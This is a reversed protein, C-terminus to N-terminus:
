EYDEVDSVAHGENKTCHECHLQILSKGAALTVSVRM